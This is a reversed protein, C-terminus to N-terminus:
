IAAGNKVEASDMLHFVYLLMDSFPRCIMGIDAKSRLLRQVAPTGFFRLPPKPNPLTAHRAV